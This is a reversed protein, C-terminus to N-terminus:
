REIMENVDKTCLFQFLKMDSKTFVSNLWPLIYRVYALRDRDSLADASWVYRLLKTGCPDLFVKIKHVCSSWYLYSRNNVTPCCMVALISYFIFKWTLRLHWLNSVDNVNWVIQFLVEGGVALSTVYCTKKGAYQLMSTVTLRCAAKGIVLWMIKGDHSTCRMISHINIMGCIQVLLWYVKHSPSPSAGLRSAAASFTSSWLNTSHLVHLHRKNQFSAGINKKVQAPNRIM